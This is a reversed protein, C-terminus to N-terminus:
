QSVYIRFVIVVVVVVVVVVDGGGGCGGDGGGCGEGGYSGGYSYKKIFLSQNRM